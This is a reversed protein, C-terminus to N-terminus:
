IEVGVGQLDPRSRSWIEVGLKSIHDLKRGAISVKEHGRGDENGDFEIDLDELCGM